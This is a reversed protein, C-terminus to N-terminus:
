PTCSTPANKTGPVTKLVTEVERAVKEMEALDKGIVKVGVPTRIGTSAIPVHRAHGHWPVAILSVLM